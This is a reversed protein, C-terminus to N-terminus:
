LSISLFSGSFTLESLSSSSVIQSLHLWMNALHKELVLFPPYSYAVVLLLVFRLGMISLSQHIQVLILGVLVSLEILAQNEVHVVLYNM